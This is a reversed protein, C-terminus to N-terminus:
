QTPAADLFYGSDWANPIPRVVARYAGGFPELGGGPSGDFRFIVGHDGTLNEAWNKDFARIAFAIAFKAIRSPLNDARYFGQGSANAPDIYPLPQYYDYRTVGDDIPNVPPAQGRVEASANAFTPTAM